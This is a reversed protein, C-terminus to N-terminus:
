LCLTDVMWVWVLVCSISSQYASSVWAYLTSCDLGAVHISFCMCNTLSCALTHWCHHEAIKMLFCLAPFFLNMYIAAASKWGAAYLTGLFIGEMMVGFESSHSPNESLCFVVDCMVHRLTNSLMITFM